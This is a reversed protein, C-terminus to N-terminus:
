RGQADVTDGHTAPSLIRFVAQQAADAASRL